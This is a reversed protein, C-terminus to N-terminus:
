QNGATTPPVWSKLRNMYLTAKGNGYSWYEFKSVSRVRDPEGLFREVEHTEMGRALQAWNDANRWGGPKAEVVLGKNVPVGQDFRTELAELRNELDIVTQELQEIKAQAAPDAALVTTAAVMAGGLAITQLIVRTNM